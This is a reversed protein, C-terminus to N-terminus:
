LPYGKVCLDQFMYMNQVPVFINMLLIIVNQGAEIFGDDIEIVSVIKGRM